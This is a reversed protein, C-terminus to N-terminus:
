SPENAKKLYRVLLKIDSCSTTQGDDNNLCSGVLISRLLLLVLAVSIVVTGGAVGPSYIAVVCLVCPPRSLVVGTTCPIIIRSHVTYPPKQAHSGSPKVGSRQETAGKGIVKGLKGDIGM